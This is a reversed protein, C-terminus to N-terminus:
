AEIFDLFQIFLSALFTEQLFSIIKHVMFTYNLWAFSAESCLNILKKKKRLKQKNMEYALAYTHVSRLYVFFFTYRKILHSTFLQRNDKLMKKLATRHTTFFCKIDVFFVQSTYFMINSCFRLFFFWLFMFRWYFQHKILNYFKVKAHVRSDNSGFFDLKLCWWNRNLSSCGGTWVYPIFM